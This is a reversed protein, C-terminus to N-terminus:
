PRATRRADRVEARYPAPLQREIHHRVTWVCATQRHGAGGRPSARCYSGAAADIRRALEDGRGAPGPLGATAIRIEDRAPPAAAPAAMPLAVLAALAAIMM